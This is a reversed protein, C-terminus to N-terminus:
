LSTTADLRQAGAVVGATPCVIMVVDDDRLGAFHVQLIPPIPQGAFELVLPTDDHIDLELRLMEIIEQARSLAGLELQCRREEPRQPQSARMLFTLNYTVDQLSELLAHDTEAIETAASAMAGSLELMAGNLSEMLGGIPNDPAVMPDLYLVDGDCCTLAENDEFPPSDFSRRLVQSETPFGFLASLHNKLVGVTSTKDVCVQLADEEIGPQAPRYITLTLQAPEASSSGVNRTLDQSGQNRGREKKRGWGFLARM